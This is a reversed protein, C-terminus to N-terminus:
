AAAATEDQQLAFISTHGSSWDPPLECAQAEFDVRRAPQSRVLTGNQDYASGPYVTLRLRPQEAIHDPELDFKEDSQTLGRSEDIFENSVQWIRDLWAQDIYYCRFLSRSVNTINDFGSNIAALKLVRRAEFLQQFDDVTLADTVFYGQNAAMRVLRTTLLRALAERIPIMSVEYSSALATISLRSVPELKGDIIASRLDAYVQNVLSNAKAIKKTKLKM